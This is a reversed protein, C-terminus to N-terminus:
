TQAGPTALQKNRRRKQQQRIAGVSFATLAAWIFAFGILQHQNFPERFLYVATFFQMTPNVYMMFGIATLSLRKAGAAFMLLPVATVIGSFMLLGTTPLGHNLFASTGQWELWLWYLLALPLLLATEVGLGTLSDVSVQKRVLGYLGFSLALSLSLWPLTGLSYVQWCVGLVALGCALWRWGDLEEKLFVRGLFVSVLPTLFYGLSCELVRNQGVGWIFLVWNTAILLSSALLSLQNRREALATWVRKWRKLYLSIAAVFLFSWIIRQTLVQFPPVDRLLHFFLPFLGWILYSGLGYIFGLHQPNIM